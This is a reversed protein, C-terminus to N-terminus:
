ARGSRSRHRLALCLFGAAPITDHQADLVKRREDFPQSFGTKEKPVAHLRSGATLLDLDFIRVPIGDLQELRCLAQRWASSRVSPALVCGPWRTLGYRM